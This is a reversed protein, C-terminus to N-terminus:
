RYRNLASIQNKGPKEKDKAVFHGAFVHVGLRRNGGDHNAKVLFVTNSVTKLAQTPAILDDHDIRKTRIPRRLNAPAIRIPKHLTLPRAVPILLCESM